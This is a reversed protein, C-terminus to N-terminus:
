LRASARRSEHGGGNEHIEPAVGLLAAVTNISEVLVDTKSWFSLM